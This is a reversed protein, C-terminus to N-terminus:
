RWYNFNRSRTSIFNKLDEIQTCKSMQHNDNMCVRFYPVSDMIATDDIDFEGSELAAILNTTSMPAGALSYTPGSNLIQRNRPTRSPKDLSLM